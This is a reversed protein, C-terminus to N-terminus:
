AQKFDRGADLPSRPSQDSRCSKFRRGGSGSVPASGSQAVSRWTGGPGRVGTRCGTRCVKPRIALHNLDNTPTLPNSGGVGEDRVLTGGALGLFVPRSRPRDNANTRTKPIWDTRCPGAVPGAREFMAARPSISLSSESQGLGTKRAVARVSAADTLRRSSGPRRTGTVRRSLGSDYPSLRADM